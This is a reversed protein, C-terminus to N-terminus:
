PLKTQLLAFIQGGLFGLIRQHYRYNPGWVEFPISFPIEFHAILTEGTILYAHHHTMVLLIQLWNYMLKMIIYILIYSGYINWWLRCYWIVLLRLCSCAANHFSLLIRVSYKNIRVLLIFASCPQSNYIAEHCLSSKSWTLLFLQNARSSSCSIECYLM